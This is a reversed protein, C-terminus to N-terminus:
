NLKSRLGLLVRIYLLPFIPAYYAEAQMVTPDDPDVIAAIGAFAGVIEQQVLQRFLSTMTVEVENVRSALFKTGIFPDLAIRSSLGVYDAIQTVTPLRTLPNTMDTTLGQRIRILTDLDELITLGAVATQNAEVPDMIRPIRTFGLVRRRTYPTAVDVAPSVALGAVAAAFFSGDVLTQFTQGLEDQITIVASDPYLAVIRSSKLGRAVTQATTPTTGSAFGIFGMREMQMRESSMTECHQTLFSYVSTDTALPVLVDPKINGPLPKALDQIAEVFAQASAQNTNQVKRVQKMGVLVAGNVIALYAGLTIRNEGSLRGYNAEIAKFTRFIKTGYDQKLYRYSIFYFDGNKPEVGSPNFTQVKGTDSATIGVTNTVVLELGPIAYRPISSTVDFTPSVELEFWGSATYTSDTSPLVTFRLGTRADTYTQGPVGTGASGTPSTSTVTFIDSAASGSDGSSGPVIGTGSLLNFASNSGDVFAVSSSSGTTLSAITIYTQGEVTSTYAVAGSANVTPWSSVAFTSTDMLRAVVENPTVRTQSASDGQTFGLIENATGDLIVISSNDGNTASTLRIKNLNGLTGVSAAGQASPIVANIDSVVASAATSSAQITVTFDVGNVRVKLRDNVGAIWSFPGANAGLLTAAKNIAGPTGSATQFPTFGLLTEATGQRVQVKAKHDFGGPLSAPVSLSRIVFYTGGVGALAAALVNPASGAFAPVLDIAANIASVVASPAVSGTPLTVSVTEDDITLELNNSGSAITLNGGTLPVFSGVLYGRTATALNTVVAANGNLATRWTASPTYFSYPGAIRNTFVAGTAAAQSFTVRAIESVPTGGFHFADPVQEAGRPWQVIDTLGGGKGKFKVQYLNTGLTSSFVEYQGAGVSGPVKCTLTFTDDTLRSYWFTAYAKHDPPVPDKLTVKRTEAEVSLVKAVPRGLADTLDRGTRVEILDPRNALLDLRNNAVATYLAAGLPTDRGNGTTPQAPLLFERDSTVAPVVSTNVFRDCPALYIRDDVLTPLIQTTDFPESGPTTPGPSVEVSAGWHVVSVDASPNSVVFDQGQIYDNRGASIGARVVNTVLTNPLYDFTDQWSNAWYTVAVTAGPAPATALNVVGNKGDVSSPIVQLGNVKVVVKSPDTTTIGGGSGDVIPRQFVRFAANRSTKTGSSFGLIGNANGDTIELSVDAFLRVHARGDNGTFVATTLGALLSADIQTKISAASGGEAGNVLNTAAQAGVVSAGSGTATATVLAAAAGSGAIAAAVQTATSTAAGGSDTAVNVTIANSAVVVSLATSNGAVVHAVTIANGALGAAVARYIVGGNAGAGPVTLSAQVSPSAVFTVTREIGGNIKLKFTDSVGAVVDFPAFGPTILNAVESTVQNSLDDTFVTDGRHFFYSCRVVDGAQPPIQLIVEGVDGRVAGVSVPVGNVTVTVKTVDRTTRGFGEGDVVPFNRVRFRTRTGDNTGLTPNSANRDDVVWSLTVDESVIEQDITASSGRVMELDFQDLEEQGVGIITPIRLGAVLSAVNSEALTRSYVGPPAYSSFPGLAM